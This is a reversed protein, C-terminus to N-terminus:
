EGLNYHNLLQIYYNMGIELVSEDFNFYCSHLPHTYNKEINRSGLMAFFAPVEEQYFSFDEAFMMAQISEKEDDNLVSNAVEYLQKPNIVPPYSSKFILEISVDNVKSLTSAIENMRSQIVKFVEPNFCRITGELSVKQAIINRAEGGHITGVTLVAPELPNVSRSIISQFAQILEAQIVIADKGLHPQAGHASKGHIICDFENTQAMMPGHILAFKGETLNPYLHLGFLAKTPYRKFLGEEILVKAGGPGEEAPQFIFLISVNFEKNSCYKALGLLMAMHGDHGCAHMNGSHQSLFDVGSEEKVSLGDMDARFGITTETKGPKFVIVGTKAMIICSYGMSELENVLYNSTIFCDLGLEPIQHLDRRKARLYELM